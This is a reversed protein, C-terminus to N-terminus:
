QKGREKNKIAFGFVRLGQKARKRKSATFAGSRQAKVAANQIQRAGRCGTKFQQEATM